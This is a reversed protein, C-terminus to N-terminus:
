SQLKAEVNALAAQLANRNPGGQSGDFSPLTPGRLSDDEDMMGAARRVRDLNEMRRRQEQERRKRAPVYTGENEAEAMLESM